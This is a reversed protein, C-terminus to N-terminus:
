TKEGMKPHQEARALPAPPKHRIIYAKKMAKLIREAAV